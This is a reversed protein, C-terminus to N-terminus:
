TKKLATKLAKEAALSLPELVDSLPPTYGFDARSLDQLTMGSQIALAMANVRGLVGEGGVVQCGVIRLTEADAVVKVTVHKWGPYYEARTRWTVKGSVVEMGLKRAHRETLGTSGVEIGFMKSAFTGLTGPFTCHGGAANIGAVKGMRVATTGLQPASPTKSVMHVSEACDGACYVGEVPRCGGRELARLKMDTKLCRTVGVALGMAEGLEVNARVGTAVVVIDAEVEMGGACVSKVHEDGLVAEVPKKLLVKVGEREVVSQVRRAMDADLSAPLISDMLEVVTVKLGRRRLADAVELGVPGAGVVVGAKAHELKRMVALCDDVTRLTYVGDLDMGEVSPKWARAGTCLIISDYEVEEVRGDERRVTAVRSARDVDVVKSKLWLDIRMAKFHSPKYTILEELSRIEGSILFPLGCRSYTSYPEDGVVIIEAERDTKRAFSAATAGAANAGVVLIRRL